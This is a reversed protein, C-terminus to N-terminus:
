RNKIKSALELTDSLMAFEDASKITINGAFDYYPLIIVDDITGYRANSNFEIENVINRTINGYMLKVLYNPIEVGNLRLLDDVEDKVIMEIKNKFNDSDLVIVKKNLISSYKEKSDIKKKKGFM